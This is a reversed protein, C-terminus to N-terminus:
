IAGFLRAAMALVLLSLFGLVWKMADRAKAGSLSPAIEGRVAAIDSKTGRRASDSSNAVASRGQADSRASSPASNPTRTRPADLAPAAGPLPGAALSSRRGRSALRCRRRGGRGKAAGRVRDPTWSARLGARAGFPLRAGEAAAEKTDHRGQAPMWSPSPAGASATRLPALRVGARAGERRAPAAGSRGGARGLGPRRKLLHAPPSAFAGRSALRCRAARGAGERRGPSSGPDLLPLPAPASLSDRVTAAEKTMGAKRRCGPPFPRRRKGTSRRWGAAREREKGERRRRQVGACPRPSAQPAAPPSAFEKALCAPLAGDDGGKTTM